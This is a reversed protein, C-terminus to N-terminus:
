ESLGLFCISLYTYVSLCSFFFSAISVFIAPSFLPGVYSAMALIYPICALICIIAILFRIIYVSFFTFPFSSARPSLSDVLHIWPFVVPRSYIVNGLAVLCIYHSFLVFFLLLSSRFSAQRHCNHYSDLPRNHVPILTRYLTTVLLVPLSLSAYLTLMTDSANYLLVEVVTTSIMEM